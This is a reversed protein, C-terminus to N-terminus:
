PPLAETVREAVDKPVWKKWLDPWSKLFRIAAQDANANRDAMYALMTSVIGGSTEYNKLFSALKPAAKAFEANAGIHVAVTPYATAATPNTEASLAHWVEANFPPEGLQVIKDGLRGLLWTPGWYYFVIPKERLVASQIAADLAAGTGPRFNTFDSALGYATLKKSNVIECQWGAICNYFRGKGPEEPDSFLEKYKALDAVNKLDPAPATPGEVLSRPVFWGQIADPFNVGLDVVAGSAEAKTWAETVQDKWVEMDIDVDGRALGNLLPIVSGPLEDVTCGYGNKVIFKAVANHFQASDYDLGAFIVPRSLECKAPKAAALAPAALCLALTATLAAFARMISEQDRVINAVRSAM